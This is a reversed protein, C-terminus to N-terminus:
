SRARIMMYAGITIIIGTIAFIFPMPPESAYRMVDPFWANEIIRAMYKMLVLAVFDLALLFLGFLLTAWGLTFQRKRTNIAAAEKLPPTAAEARSAAIDNGLLEDTSVAFLQSLALIKEIEPSSQDTEWKSIAQRSVKLLEALQEQSLGAAKRLQQIKEGLSM